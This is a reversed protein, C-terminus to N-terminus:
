LPKVASSACMWSLLSGVGAPLDALPVADCGDELRVAQRVHSLLDIAVVSKGKAGAEVYSLAACGASRGVLQSLRESSLIDLGPVSLLMRPASGGDLVVLHALPNLAHFGRAEHAFARLPTFPHRAM